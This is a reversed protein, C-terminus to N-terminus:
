STSGVPSACPSSGGISLRQTDATTQLSLGYGDPSRMTVFGRGPRDDAAIHWGQAKWHTVFADFAAATAAADVGTIWFSAQANVDGANHSDADNCPLPPTPGLPRGLSASGPLETVAKRVYADLRHQAETISLSRPLPDGQRSSSCGSVLLAAALLLASLRTV